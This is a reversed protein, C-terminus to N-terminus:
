VIINDLLQKLKKLDSLQLNWRRNALGLPSWLVLPFAIRHYWNFKQGACEKIKKYPLEGILNLANLAISGVPAVIPPNLEDIIRKLYKNCNRVESTKPSRMKGSSDIAVHLIANIFLCVEDSIESAKFLEKANLASQDYNNKSSLIGTRAAGGEATGASQLVFVVKLKNKDFNEKFYPVPNHIGFKPYDDDKPISPCLHCTHAEKFISSLQDDM